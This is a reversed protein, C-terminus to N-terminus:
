WRADVQLSLSPVWGGYRYGPYGPNRMFAADDPFRRGNKIEERDELFAFRGAVGVTFPVDADILADLDIRAGWTATHTDSTMLNTPGGLDAYPARDFRYGAMLSLWAVPTVRVGLMPVLIDGFRSGLDAQTPSPAQSWLAWTLDASVDIEPIPRWAASLGLQHPRYIHAFRYVFGLDGISELGQLRAYGWDDSLLEGRWSFGFRLDRLPSFLLGATPAVHGYISTDVGIRAGALLRGTMPDRRVDAAFGTLFAEEDFIVRLGVGVSLWEAMRYALAAHLVIHQTRDTHMLWQPQDDPVLSSLVLGEYPLYVSAALVLGRLGFGNGVDFRGGIAFAYTAPVPAVDLAAGSTRSSWLDYWAFQTTFTLEGFGPRDAPLTAAGPNYVAASFSG